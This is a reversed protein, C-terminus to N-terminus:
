SSELQQLGALLQKKEELVQEWYFWDTYDEHVELSDNKPLIESEFEQFTVGYQTEFGRIHRECEEIESELQHIRGLAAEYIGARILQDREVEPLSKLKELLDTPIAQM